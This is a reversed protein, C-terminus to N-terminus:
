LQITVKYASVSSYSYNTPGIWDQDLKQTSHARSNARINGRAREYGEWSERSRMSARKAKAEDNDREMEECFPWGETM